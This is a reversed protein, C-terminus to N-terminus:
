PLPRGLDAAVELWGQMADRTNKLAEAPTEGDSMCGPLDPVTGLFGGGDEAPLPTLVIRYESMAFGRNAVSSEPLFFHHSRRVFWAGRATM